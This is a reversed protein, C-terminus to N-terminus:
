FDVLNIDIKIKYFDHDIDIEKVTGTLLKGADLLRSFIENDMRPIYGLKQKRDNLVLIAKDDFKNQVERRLILHDKVKLNEFISQDEIYSTGAIYTDFLFIEKVLPQILSTIGSEEIVSVINGKSIVLDDSM